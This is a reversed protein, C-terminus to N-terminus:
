ACQFLASREVADNRERDDDERVTVKTGEMEIRECCKVGNWNGREM